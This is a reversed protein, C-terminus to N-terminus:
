SRAKIRRRLLRKLKNACRSPDESECEWITLVEFSMKRLEAIRAADRAVNAEFKKTWLRRNRSPTTTRVCGSHRHWYCGHVFIAWTRTRNAIDPSGPLDRNSTRYAIGLQRLERRVALEPATASQRIGAMRLSTRADTVFGRKSRGRKM